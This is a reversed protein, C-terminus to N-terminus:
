RARRLFPPIDLPDADDPLPLPERRAERTPDRPPEPTGRREDQRGSAPWGSREWERAPPASPRASPGAPAAAVDRAARRPAEPMGTAILTVRLGVEPRPHIVAGFIINADPAAAQTVFQAVENVEHLTLDPGGTINLLIGRAGEISHELLPSAVVAEAALRARFEGNGEGIAMLASGANEMVSRVDAFDLNILGTVTVLDAIGQVGHRLMDDARRFAEVITTTREALGLLRDNPIVILADVAARLAAVGQEALRRRQAGEFGFPLTVVGVTLAKQRRAIEAVVPAAGTGTGGGMGATIFVMDAGAILDAIADASEEAARRGVSPDGGAGLRRAGPLGIRLRNRAASQELAQPDTNIVVFEVGTVGAEIMRNVANSGGGGVGVIRVETFGRPEARPREELLARRAPSAPPVLAAPEPPAASRLLSGSGIIKPIVAAPRQVEGLRLPNFGGRGKRGGPPGAGPDGARPEGRQQFEPLERESM